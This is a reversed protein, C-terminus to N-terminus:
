KSLTISIASGLDGLKGGERPFGTADVEGKPEGHCTLCSRSYYEPIIMRFRARGNAEVTEYWPQGRPWDPSLLRGNIIETEWADPLASRNRVLNRPATVKIRALHGVKTAFKENVLRAFVAPIFGKFGLDPNNILPQADDLVEVMSDLQAKVLKEDLPSMEETLAPQGNQTEYAHMVEIVFAVASLEKDGVGTQNIRAQNTSVVNRGARLLAALRNGTEILSADESDSASLVQPLLLAVALLAAACVARLARDERHSGALLSMKM